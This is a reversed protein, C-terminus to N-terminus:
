QKGPLDKEKRTSILAFLHGRLKLKEKDEPTFDHVQVWGTESPTGLVKASAVQFDM